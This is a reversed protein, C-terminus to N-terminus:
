AYSPGNWYSPAAKDYINIINTTMINCKLLKVFLKDGCWLQKNDNM